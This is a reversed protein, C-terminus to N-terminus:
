NRGYEGSTQLYLINKIPSESNLVYSGTVVSDVKNLLEINSDNVGGDICLTFDKRNSFTDFENIWSLVKEDFKQGSFGPSKISLLMVHKVESLHRYLDKIDDTLSIVVGPNCGRKRILTLLEEVNEDIDLHIYITDVFPTLEDLWVSPTRSMIHVEIPKSRWYARVVEARYAKVENCDPRFTKDVIDIHIFDPVNEIRNYIMQIDELGDAYIAVGVKKYEKFTVKRHVYYTLLFFSGSIVFRSLDISIGKSILLNRFYLQVCFSILSISFFYFLAKKIKVKSIKFNFKINLIFALFLGLFFGIIASVYYPFNLKVLTHILLLEVALSIFGFIVYLIIFRFRYIYFKTSYM